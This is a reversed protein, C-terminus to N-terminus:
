EDPTALIIGQTGDTFYCQTVVIGRNNIAYSFVDTLMKGDVTDGPAAIVDSQTFVASGLEGMQGPILVEAGFVITGRNNIAPYGIYELGKGGIETNLTAVVNSLTFIGFGFRYTVGFFNNFALTGSDNIALGSFSPGLTIDDITDGSQILLRSPTFIGHRFIGSGENFSGVFVIDGRQNITFSGLGTLTKGDITGGVNAVLRSSDEAKTGTNIKRAFISIPFPAYAPGSLGTFVVEKNNVAFDGVNSLTIGGISDGTKALVDSPTFIGTGGDFSATFVVTGRDNIAFGGINGLTIGGITDGTKALLDSATFIGNGGNFSATFVVTGRDNIAFGGINGLTVGGITDGTKALISLTYNASHALGASCIFVTGLTLILRIRAMGQRCTSSLQSRKLDQM